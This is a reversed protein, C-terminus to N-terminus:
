KELLCRSGQAMQEIAQRGQAPPWAMNCAMWSESVTPREVVHVQM